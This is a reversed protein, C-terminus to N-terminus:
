DSPDEVRRIQPKESIESIRPDLDDSHEPGGHYGGTDSILQETAMAELEPAEALTLSSLELKMRFPQYKDGKFFAYLTEGEVRPSAVTELDPVDCRWTALQSVWYRLKFTGWDKSRYEELYAEGDEIPQFNGHRVGRDGWYKELEGALTALLKPERAEPHADALESFSAYRTPEGQAPWWVYPQAGAGRGVALYLQDRSAGKASVFGEVPGGFLERARAATETLPVQTQEKLNESAGSWEEGFSLRHQQGFLYRHAGGWDFNFTYLVLEEGEWAPGVLRELPPSSITEGSYYRRQKSLEPEAWEAIAAALQENSGVLKQRTQALHVYAEALQSTLAADGRARAPLDAVLPGLEAFSKAAREGVEVQPEFSDDTYTLRLPGAPSDSM